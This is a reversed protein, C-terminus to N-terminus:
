IPLDSSPIGAPSSCCLTFEPVTPCCILEDHDFGLPDAVGLPEIIGDYSLQM